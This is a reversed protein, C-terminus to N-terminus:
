FFGTQSVPITMPTSTYFTKSFFAPRVSRPHDSPNTLNTHDSTQCFKLSKHFKPLFKSFVPIKIFLKMFCLVFNLYFFNSIILKKFFICLNDLFSSLFRLVSMSQFWSWYFWHSRTSHNMTLQDLVYRLRYSVCFNLYTLKELSVSRSFFEESFSVNNM